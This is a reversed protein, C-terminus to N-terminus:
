DFPLRGRSRRPPLPSARSSRPTKKRPALPKIEDHDLPQLRDGRLQAEILNLLHDRVVADDVDFPPHTKNCDVMEVGGEVDNLVVFHRERELAFSGSEPKGSIIFDLDRLRINLDPLLSYAATM